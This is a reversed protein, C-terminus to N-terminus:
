AVRGIESWETFRNPFFRISETTEDRVLAGHREAATLQEQALLVSVHLLHSAEQCTIGKSAIQVLRDAIQDDNLSADQLVRLGSPFQYHSLGLSLVQMQDVAQLLDEPSILNTGRARNYLCYVDTLTMMTNKLRPRLFDALERALTQYYADERGKYDAKRLAATMGMNSLMNTLRENDRNDDDDKAEHKDLTSVFKQIIKVLAAAEELLTEADGAFAQKTIRTAQQQRARSRSMIADVGVKSAASSAVAQEEKALRQEREWEKRRMATELHGMVDKCQQSAKDGRFICFLEGLVSGLILRPSKFMTGKEMQTHAILNSLHLYRAPMEGVRFVMRHTTITMQCDSSRDVWQKGQTNAPNGGFTLATMAEDPVAARLEVHDVNAMLLVEHSELELLGSGTLKAGPFCDVPGWTTSRSTSM